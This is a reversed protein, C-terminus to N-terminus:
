GTERWGIRVAHTVSDSNQVEFALGAGAPVVVADSTDACAVQFSGVTCTLASAQGNVFLTVKVLQGAAVAPEGAPFTVQLDRATTAVPPSVSEVNILSGNGTSIGSPSGYATVGAGTSNIRALIASAANSGDTGPTGNTGNTGNQGAPGPPGPPGRKAKKKSVEAASLQKAVEKKVLSQLSPGGLAPSVAVVVLTVAIAIAIQGFRLRQKIRTLKRM